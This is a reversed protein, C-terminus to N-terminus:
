KVVRVSSVNVDITLPRGLMAFALGVTGKRSDSTTVKAEFNMFPGDIITVDAGVPIITFENNKPLRKPCREIVLGMAEDDVPGLRRGVGPVRLVQGWADLDEDMRVFAYGPMWWKLVPKARPRPMLYNLELSEFGMLDVVLRRFIEARRADFTFANWRPARADEPTGPTIAPSFEGAGGSTM